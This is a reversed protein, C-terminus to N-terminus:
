IEREFWTSASFVSIISSVPTVENIFIKIQIRSNYRISLLDYLIEFRKLRDPYDIGAIFTLVKYQYISHMKFFNLIFVIDKTNISINLTNNDYKFFLILPLMDKLYKIFNIQYSKISQNPNQLVM